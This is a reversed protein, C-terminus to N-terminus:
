IWRSCWGSDPAPWAARRACACQRSIRAAGFAGQSRRKGDQFGGAVSMADMASMDDKTFIHLDERGTAGFSLFYREDEEVFVRDGGRLLTDRRPNNLLADVSTGYINRQGRM